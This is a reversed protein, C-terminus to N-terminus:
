CQQSSDPRAWRGTEFRRWRTSSQLCLNLNTLTCRPFGHPPGVSEGFDRWFRDHPLADIQIVSLPLLIALSLFSATFQEPATHGRHGLTCPRTPRHYRQNSPSLNLRQYFCHLLATFLSLLKSDLNLAIYLELSQTLRRVVATLCGLASVCQRSTTVKQCPCHHVPGIPGHCVSCHCQLGELDEITRAERRVGQATKM